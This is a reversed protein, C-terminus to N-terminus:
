CSIEQGIKFQAVQIETPMADNSLCECPLLILLHIQTANDFCV